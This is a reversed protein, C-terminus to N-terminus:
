TNENTALRALTKVPGAVGAAAAPLEMASQIDSLGKSHRRAGASGLM